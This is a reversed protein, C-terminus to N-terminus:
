TESEDIEEEQIWAWERASEGKEERFGVVPDRNM